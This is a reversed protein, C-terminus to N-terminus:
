RLLPLINSNNILWVILINKLQHTAFFFLSPINKSNSNNNNKLCPRAVNGLSSEFEHETEQRLRLKRLEPIVTRLWCTQSNYWSCVHFFRLHTNSLSTLRFLHCLTMTWNCLKQSLCVILATALGVHPSSPLPSSCAPCLLRQELFCWIIRYRCCM